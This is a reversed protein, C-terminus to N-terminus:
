INYSADFMLKEFIKGFIPLLSISGYNKKNQRSEKKHIPIIKGKKWSSPYLGTSLSKGFIMCLPDVISSDCIKIMFVSIKDCGHAKKADLMRILKFVKDKNVTIEKLQNNIRPQFTPFSSM